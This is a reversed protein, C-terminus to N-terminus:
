LVRAVFFAVLLVGALVTWLAFWLEGCPVGRSFLSCSFISFVALLAMLVLGTRVGSGPSPDEGDQLLIGTGPATSEGTPHLSTTPPREPRTTRTAHSM